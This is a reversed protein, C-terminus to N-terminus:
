LRDIRADVDLFKDDSAQQSRTIALKLKQLNGQTEAYFGEIGEKLIGMDSIIDSKKKSDKQIERTVLDIVEDQMMTKDEFKTDLKAM